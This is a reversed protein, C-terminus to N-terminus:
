RLFDEIRYFVNKPFSTDRVPLGSVSIGGLVGQFSAHPAQDPLLAVRIAQLNGLDSLRIRQTQFGIASIVLWQQELPTTKSFALRFNGLADAKTEVTDDLRITVIASKGALVNGSISTSDQVPVIPSLPITPASLLEIETSRQQIQQAVAPRETLWTVLGLALASLTWRKKSGTEPKFARNLQDERFKGCGNELQKTLWEVVEADSMATFDVVTKQCSQCFRGQHQPTMTNWDERCPQPITVTLTNKFM